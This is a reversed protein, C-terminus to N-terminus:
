QHETPPQVAEEARERQEDEVDDASVNQERELRLPRDARAGHLDGRDSVHYRGDEPPDDQEAVQQHFLLDGDRPRAHRETTKDRRRDGARDDISFLGSLKRESALLLADRHEEPVDAPEGRNGLPKSRPNEEAVEVPVEVTHHVDHIAIFAGHVLEVAVVDHNEIARRELHLIGRALGDLARELHLTPDNGLALLAPQVDGEPEAYIGARDHGTEEAGFSAHLVRDDPVTGVDRRPEGRGVNGSTVLHDDRALRQRLEAVVDFGDVETRHRHLPADLRHRAPLAVPEAIDGTRLGRRRGLHGHTPHDHRSIATSSSLTASTRTLSPWRATWFSRSAYRRPRTSRQECATSASRQVTYM